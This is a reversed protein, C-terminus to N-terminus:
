EEVEKNILMMGYLVRRMVEEAMESEEVKKFTISVEDSNEKEELYVEVVKRNM